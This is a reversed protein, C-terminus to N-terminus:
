VVFGFADELFGYGIGKDRGHVSFDVAEALYELYKFEGFRRMIFPHSSYSKAFLTYDKGYIHWRDGAPTKEINLDKFQMTRNAKFDFYHANSFLRFKGPLLPYYLAFFEFIDGNQFYFRGWNWPLFPSTIIVKQVYCKGSIPKGVLKGEFDFYINVLGYGIKNVLLNQIEYPRGRRSKMIKLNILEKGNQSYTLAYHPYKGSIDFATGRSEFRLSNGARERVIAARVKSNLLLKKEGDFLWIVAACDTSGSANTSGRVKMRNIDMAMNARGFTVILQHGTKPDTFHLFWYEKGLPPLEVFNFFFDDAATFNKFGLLRNLTLLSTYITNIARDSAAKQIDNLKPVKKEYHLLKKESYKVVRKLNEEMERFSSPLIKM